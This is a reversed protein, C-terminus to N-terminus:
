GGLNQIAIQYGFAHQQIGVPERKQGQLVYDIGTVLQGQPDTLERRNGRDRLHWGPPLLGQWQDLPWYSLMIDSLVQTAPPLNPVTIYQSSQVGRADYQVSFLKVGVSSLAVFSLQSADANLLVMLSHQQGKFTSTLLQQAQLPPTLGPAPLSIRVGPKLWAGPAQNGSPSACAAITLSLLMALFLNIRRM